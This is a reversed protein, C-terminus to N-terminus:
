LRSHCGKGGEKLKTLEGEFGRWGELLSGSTPAVQKQMM